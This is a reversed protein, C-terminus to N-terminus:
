VHARGIQSLKPQAPAVPEIPEVSVHEHLHQSLKPLVPAVPDITVAANVHPSLKPQAPAIPAINSAESHAIDLKPQSPAIPSVAIAGTDNVSLSLRPTPADIPAVSLESVRPIISNPPQTPAVPAFEYVPVVNSFELYVDEMVVDEYDEDYLGGLESSLTEGVTSLIAPPDEEMPSGPTATAAALAADATLNRQREKQYQGELHAIREDKVILTREHDDIHSQLREVDAELNHNEEQLRSIHHLEEELQAKQGYVHQLEEELAKRDFQLGVLDRELADRADLAAIRADEADKRDAYAKNLFSERDLAAAKEHELDSRLANNTTRLADIEAALKEAKKTAELSATTAEQYDKQKQSLDERLGRITADTTELKNQLEVIRDYDGSDDAMTEARLQHYDNRLQSLVKKAVSRFLM